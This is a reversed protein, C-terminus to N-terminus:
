CKATDGLALVAAFLSACTIVYTEKTACLLALALAAFYIRSSQKQAFVLYTEVALWTTSFVFLMEHIAYRSYFVMSPSVAILLASLLIFFWGTVQKLPLLLLPLLAGFFISTSRLGYESTGTLESMLYNILFYAPGHYNEHSYRYVGTERIGVLFHFNVAEDSHLPRLEIHYTRLFFALALVLVFLLAACVALKKAKRSSLTEAAAAM